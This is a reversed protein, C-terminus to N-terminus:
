GSEPAWAGPKQAPLCSGRPREREQACGDPTRRPLGVLLAAGADGRSPPRLELGGVQLGSAPSAPADHPGPAGPGAEARGRGRAGGGGAGKRRGPRVVAAEGGRVAGARGRSGESGGPRGLGRGARAGQRGAESERGGRRAGGAPGSRQPLRRAAPVAPQQLARQAAPLAGARHAADPGPLDESAAGEGAEAAHRRRPRVAGPGGGALAAARLSALGRSPARGRPRGGPGRPARAPGAREAGPHLTPPVGPRCRRGRGM